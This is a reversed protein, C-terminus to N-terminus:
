ELVKIQLDIAVEKMRKDLTILPCRLSQSCQLFYADYAYLNYQIAIELSEQINSPILRVPIKQTNIFATEAEDAILSHRKIM